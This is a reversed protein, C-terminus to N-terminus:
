VNKKQLLNSLIKNQLKIVLYKQCTINEGFMFATISPYMGALVNWKGCSFQCSEKTCACAWLELDHEELITALFSMNNKFGDVKAQTCAPREVLIRLDKPANEQNAQKSYESVWSSAILKLDM